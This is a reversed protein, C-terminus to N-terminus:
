IMESAFFENIEVLNVGSSENTGLWAETIFGNDVHVRYQTGREKAPLLVIVERPGTVGLVSEIIDTSVTAAAKSSPQPVVRWANKYKFFRYTSM